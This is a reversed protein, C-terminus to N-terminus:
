KKVQQKYKTLVKQAIGQGWQQGLMMSERMIQPQVRILKKGTPSNYFKNMVEVDEETLYKQYIPIVLNVMENADVEAMFDTWFKEPADPVMKKLAPLMQNMVQIGMNGAGTRQMLKEISKKSAPEAFVSTSIFLASILFSTIIKKTM